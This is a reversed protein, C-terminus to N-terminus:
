ETRGFHNGHRHYMRRMGHLKRADLNASQEFPGFHAEVEAEDGLTLFPADLIIKSGITRRSCVM